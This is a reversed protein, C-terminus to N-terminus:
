LSYYQKEEDMDAKRASIIRVSQEGDHQRYTHCVVCVIGKETRGMSIWRDEASDSHKRDFITIVNPDQFVPIVSTFSIGHKRRNATDKSEDWEFRM